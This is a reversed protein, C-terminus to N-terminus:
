AGARPGDGRQPMGGHTSCRACASRRAEYEGDGIFFGGRTGDPLWQEHRQCAYVISELQPHHPCSRAAADAPSPWLCSTSAARAASARREEWGSRGAEQEGRGGRRCRRYCGQMWWSRTRRSSTRFTPPTWRRWRRQRWSLTPTPRALSCSPPDTSRCRTCPTPHPAPPGLVSLPAPWARPPLPATRLARARSACPPAADVGGGGAAAAAAAAALPALLACWSRTECKWTM